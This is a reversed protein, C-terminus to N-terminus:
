KGKCRGSHGAIPHNKFFNASYNGRNKCSLLDRTNYTYTEEQHFEYKSACAFVKDFIYIQFSINIINELSITFKFMVYFSFEFAKIQIYGDITFNEKLYLKLKCGVRGSVLIGHVGVNISISFITRNSPVYLGLDLTLSVQAKGYAEIFFYNENNGWNYEYGVNICAGIDLSPTLAIVFDLFSALQINFAFTKTFKYFNYCIGLPISIQKKTFSVSASFDLDDFELKKTDSIKIYWQSFKSKPNIWILKADKALIYYNESFKFRNKNALVNEKFFENLFELENLNNNQDLIDNDEEDDDKKKKLLRLKYKQFDEESLYKMKDQILDSLIKYQDKIKIFSLNFSLGIFITSDKLLNVFENKYLSIIDSNNNIYFSIKNYKEYINEEFKNYNDLTLITSFKIATMDISRKLLQLYIINEKMLFNNATINMNKYEKGLYLDIFNYITDNINLLFDLIDSETISGMTHDYGNLKRIKLNRLKNIKTKNINLDFIEFSVNNTEDIETRRRENEKSNNFHIQCISYNCPKNYTILGNILTYHILKNLYSDFDQTLIESYEYFEKKIIELFSSINEYISELKLNDKIISYYDPFTSTINFIKDLLKKEIENYQDKIHKLPPQLYDFIFISLKNLPNNSIHFQYHSNQNNVVKNYNNILGNIINMDQPLEKTKKHDLIIKISHKFALSINSINQVKSYLSDDILKKITQVIIDDILVKSISDITKNFKKDLIIEEYFENLKFISLNYENLDQIYYNIFNNRLIIKLDKQFIDLYFYLDENIFYYFTDNLKRNIKEYLDIFARKSSYGMEETDNLILTYYYFEDIINKNIYDFYLEFKNNFLFTINDIIDKIIFDNILNIYSSNFSNILLNYLYNKYEDNKMYNIYNIIAEIGDFNYSIDNLIDNKQYPELKFNKELYNNLFIGDIYNSKIKINIKNIINELENKYNNDFSDFFFVNSNYFKNNYCNLLKLSCNFDSINDKKLSNLKNFCIDSRNKIYEIKYKITLANKKVFNEKIDYCNIFTENVLQIINNYKEFQSENKNKNRNLIDYSYELCMTQNYKLINFYENTIYKSSNNSFKIYFENYIKDIKELSFKEIEIIKSIIGSVYSNTYNEFLEVYDYIVEFEFDYYEKQMFIILDEGLDYTMNLLNFDYNKSFNNVIKKFFERKDSQLKRFINKLSNHFIYSKNLNYIFNKYDIFINHIKEYFYLHMEKFYTENINYYDYNNKLSLQRLLTENFDNIQINTFNFIDNYIYSINNNYDDDKFTIIEIFKQLLNFYDNKYSYKSKFDEIFIQFYENILILSEKNIDILKNNSENYVNIISKDNLIEDSYIIKNINVLNKLNYNNYLNDINELIIKSYIIGERLKMINFNYKSFNEDFRKKEKKCEFINIDTMNVEEIGINNSLDQDTFNGLDQDTFNGLDQSTINGLNQNCNESTFNKNIIDELFFVLNKTNNMINQNQKEIGKFYKLLNDRIKLNNSSNKLNNICINFTEELKSYLPLYYNSVINNSNINTFIYEFHSKLFNYIYKNTSQVINKIRDQFNIEIINKINKCNYILEELFENIKYIIEEPYELFSSYNKLYYNIYYDDKLLNINNNFNNMYFSINEFTDNIENIIINLLGENSDDKIINNCILIYQNLLIDIKQTTNIKNEIYNYLNSYLINIKSIYDNIYYQYKNTINSLIERCNNKLYNETKSLDNILYDINQTASDTYEYVFFGVGWYCYFDYKNNRGEYNGKTTRGLIQEYYNKFETLRKEEYPFIIEEVLESAKIIINSFFLEDFYNYYYEILKLIENNVQEFLYFNDKYLDDNFYYSNISLIYDKIFASQDNKLKDIYKKLLNYFNQSIIELINPLRQQYDIFRNLVRKGLKKKKHYCVDFFHYIQRFENMALNFNYDIIGKLSINVANEVLTNIQKSLEELGEKIFLKWFYYLDYHINYLNKEMYDQSYNSIFDNVKKIEFNIEKVINKSIEFLNKKKKNISNEKDYYYPKLNIINKSIIENHINNIHEIISKSNINNISNINEIYLQYTEFNNIGNKIDSILKNSKEETNNLFQLAKKNSLYKISNNNEINMENLYDKNIDSILIDIITLIINRFNKLKEKAEKRSNEAIANVLIENKNINISLFDTIYLLDGILEDIYETLDYKFKIIGKEISKFLNNNFYKFILKSEYINDIIDYLVDIQFDNINDLEEAINELFKLTKNEFLELISIMDYIYDIYERKITNCINNIINYKRNQIDELMKIYDNYVENILQIFKIFFEGTFNQVQEYMQNLSDKFLNSYDYNYEFIETINKEIGIITDLYKETRNLLDINTQQLLLILNYGMQNKRETIIHMNSHQDALKMKLNKNGFTVIFYSNVIGTSPDIETRIQKEMKLGILNYKYLYKVHNIKKMGYYEDNEELNRTENKEEEETINNEERVYLKYTFNDFYKYLLKNLSDDTFYTSCNIIHTGIIFISGINFSINSKPQADNIGEQKGNNNDDNNSMDEFNDTNPSEFKTLTIQEVSELIGEKNIITYITTNEVSGEMEVEDSEINNMSYQTLNSYNKNLNDAQRLDFNESESDPITLYEEIEVEGMYNTENYSYEKTGNLNNELNRKIVNINDQIKYKKQKRKSLNRRKNSSNTNSDNTSFLLENISDNISKVYLESKIKPIILRAIDEIYNFDNISTGNPIYYDKIEGSQYFELKVFCINGENGIYQLDINKIERKNRTNLYNNLTKDFITIMDKTKNRLTVNLFAIYGTYVENQILNIEDFEIDKDRVIFFFDSIQSLFDESKNKKTKEGEIKMLTEKKSEFRIFLNKIYKKNIILNEKKSNEILKKNKFKNKFFIIALITLSILIIILFVSFIIIYLKKNGKQNNKISRRRSPYLKTKDYNKSLNPLLSILIIDKDKLGLESIYKEKQLEKEYYNKRKLYLYYNDKIEISNNKLFNEIVEGLYDDKDAVIKKTLIEKKNQYSISLKITCKDNIELKETKM